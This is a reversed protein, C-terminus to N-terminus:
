TPCWKAALSIEHVKGSNLKEIDAGLLEAFFDSIKDHLLRYNGDSYYKELAKKAKAREKEKRLCRAKEQEAKMEEKM